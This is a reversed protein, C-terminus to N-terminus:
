QWVRSSRKRVTFYKWYISKSGIILKVVSAEVFDFGFLECFIWAVYAVFVDTFASCDVQAQLQAVYAKYEAGWTSIHHLRSHSFFESVRKRNEASMQEFDTHSVKSAIHENALPAAAAVIAHENSMEAMTDVAFYDEPETDSVNQLALERTFEANNVSVASIDVTIPSVHSTDLETSTLSCDEDLTESCIGECSNGVLGSDSTQQLSTKTREFGSPRFLLYDQYPLLKGSSISAFLLFYSINVVEGNGFVNYMLWSIAHLSIQYQHQVAPIFPAV